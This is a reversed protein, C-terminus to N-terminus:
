WTLSYSWDTLRLPALTSTFQPDNFHASLLFVPSIVLRSLRALGCIPQLLSRDATIGSISRCRINPMSVIAQTFCEAHDGTSEGTHGQLSPVRMYNVNQVHKALHIASEDGDMVSQCFSFYFPTSITITHFLSIVTHRWARGSFLAFRAQHTRSEPYIDSPIQIPPRDQERHPPETM